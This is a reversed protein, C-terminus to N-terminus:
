ANEAFFEPFSEITHLKVPDVSKLFLTQV